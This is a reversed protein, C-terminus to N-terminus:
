SALEFAYVALWVVIASNAALLGSTQLTGSFEEATSGRADLPSRFLLLSSAFSVAFVALVAVPLLGMFVSPLFALVSLALLGYMIQTTRRPGLEIATNQLGVAKDVQFDRLQNYLQGYASFLTVALILTWGWGPSPDYVFYASLLLLGGLMAAHSVVDLVFISKLRTWRWSYLHSVALTTTGILATRGGLLLYLVLSTVLILGAGMWGVSPSVSGSSIANRKASLSSLADDQSDEIDNIMFAYTVALVNATAVAAVRWDLPAASSSASLLAGTLSIPIVFPIHERARTLRLLGRAGMLGHDTFTTM